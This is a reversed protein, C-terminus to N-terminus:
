RSSAQPSQNRLGKRSTIGLKSFVNGLHWEVTRPSIFLQAAIEPNTLGDRALHAVQAEQATLDTLKDVTRKGVTEGTALLERRAREAFGDAGARSFIEYANRLAERADQRRNERRLWEGHVLQARALHVAVQTHGLRQIAERYLDDAAQGSSLLARSRAEIGLAWDTGSARTREALVAVGHAGAEPDGARAAAEILETLSWCFYGLDEYQCARRAAALATEYRGLGNYLVATAYEAVGIARGEGRATADKIGAEILDLAAVEQGRWGALVLSAYFLMTASGTAESIAQAEEILAAADDFEGAHVRACAQCSLGMPLAVVAGADRADGVARNALEHWAWDDWLEPAIPETTLLCEVWLRYWLMDEQAPRAEHQQFAHVADRLPGLGAAHGGSLRAALGDLLMDIARPPQPAPPANRVAAAVEQLGPSSGLRGICIAAETAELYTERALRANLPALQRAADLLLAPADSGRTWTFFTLRARCRDLRARQLADLPAAAAAALLKYAADTAGAEFKAQAAELARVARRAPEPTLEAAQRLFEAAACVGGRAEARGASRELEAAVAEDPGTAARACHWARRDPDAQPDTADALARHAARRETPTAAQYIASRALPHRFQVQPGFEVLEAAEAPAAADAGIGQALAARWLLTVDGTPEAAATLVFQRTSPPLSQFQRSFGDEIRDPLPQNGPLLFGGVLGVPDLWRTLQLIALPNGHTEALIRDEVAPDLRGHVALALLMRADPDGLSTVNLEPLGTLEAVDSPEPLAFVMAVREALLRRAAFALAQMSSRDVWQADDVLCALPREDAVEALLSLVALRVLLKDPSHGGQAGLAVALADRQPGPLHELRDIMPGFLQHLGAFPLEMESQVGSVRDVRFGKARSAAYDLLATKGIGPEGRLVLVGSTGAQAEGLLDDLVACERHRGRLRTMAYTSTFSM